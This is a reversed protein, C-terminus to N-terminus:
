RVYFPTTHENMWRAVPDAEDDLFVVAYPRVAETGAREWDDVTRDPLIGILLAPPEAGVQAVARRASLVAPTAAFASELSALLEVPETEPEGLRVTRHEGRIVRVGDARVPLGLDAGPNVALGLEDAMLAALEKGTLEMHPQTGAGRAYQEASTYAAVYPSGDLVMVPLRAQGDSGLGGPLPVWLTNGALAELLQDPTATGARLGALVGELPNLM